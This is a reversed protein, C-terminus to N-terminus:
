EIHTLLTNLADKTATDNKLSFVFIRGDTIRVVICQTADLDACIYHEGWTENTWHGYRLVMTDKGELATGAEPIAVLEASEIDAYGITMTYKDSQIKVSEAGFDVKVDDASDIFSIGITVAFLLIGFILYRLTVKNKFLEFFKM